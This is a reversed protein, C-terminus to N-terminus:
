LNKEMMFDKFRITDVFVDNYGSKLFGHKEYFAVAQPNEVWVNLWVKKINKTKLFDISNQMLRSGLGLARAEALLYFKAIEAIEEDLLLKVVGLIEHENEAVIYSSDSIDQRIKEASLYDDLHEQLTKSDLVVGYTEAFVTQLLQSIQISDAVKANRIKVSESSQIM